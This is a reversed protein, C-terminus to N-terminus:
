AVPQSSSPAAQQSQSSSSSSVQSAASTVPRALIRELVALRAESSAYAAQADTVVKARLVLLDKEILAVRAKTLLHVSNAMSLLFTLGLICMEFITM